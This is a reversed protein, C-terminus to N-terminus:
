SCFSTLSVSSSFDLSLSFHRLFLILRYIFCSILIDGKSRKLRRLFVSKISKKVLARSCILSTITIANSYFFVNFFRKKNFAKYCVGRAELRALHTCYGAPHFHHCDLIVSYSHLINFKKNCELACFSSINRM